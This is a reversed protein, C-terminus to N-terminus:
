EVPTDRYTRYQPADDLIEFWPAKSRVFIHSRPRLAVPTDLTGAAIELVAVDADTWCTLTSGCTRCFSRKTGTDAMYTELNDQGAIWEFAERRAEIYTAFAAGHSKRCHVCHCNDMEGWPAAARYRVRGCLCSGELIDPIENM